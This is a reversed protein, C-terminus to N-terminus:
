VAEQHLQQLTPDESIAERVRGVAILVRSLPICARRAAELPATDGLLCPLVVDADPGAIIRIRQWVHSRWRILDVSAAQDDDAASAVEKLETSRIDKLVSRRHKYSVITGADLVFNLLHRNVAGYLYGRLDGQEADFRPYVKLAIMVAEQRLDEQPVSWCRRSIKDAVQHAVDTLINQDDINM